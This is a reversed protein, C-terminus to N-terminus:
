ELSPLYKAVPLSCHTGIKRNAKKLGSDQGGKLDSLAKNNMLFFAM